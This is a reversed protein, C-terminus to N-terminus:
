ASPKVDRSWQWGPQFTGRGMTFDGLTVVDLHGNAQFKRTEDAVEINRSELTGSTVGELTNHAGPLRPAAAAGHFKPHPPRRGEPRSTKRDHCLARAIDDAERGRRTASRPCAGLRVGCAVLGAQSRSGPVSTARAPGPSPCGPRDSGARDTSVEAVRLQSPTKIKLMTPPPSRLRPPPDRNRLHDLDPGLWSQLTSWRFGSQAPKRFEGKSAASWSALNPLPRKM